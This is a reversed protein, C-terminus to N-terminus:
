EGYNVAAREVAGFESWQSSPGIKDVPIGTEAAIEELSSGADLMRLAIETSVRVQEKVSDDLSTKAVGEAYGELWGEAYIHRYTCSEWM